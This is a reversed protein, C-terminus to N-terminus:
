SLGQRQGHMALRSGSLAPGAAFAACCMSIHMSTLKVPLDRLGHRYLLNQPVSQTAGAM